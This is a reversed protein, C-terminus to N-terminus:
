LNAPKQLREIKPLGNIEIEIVYSDGDDKVSHVMIGEHHLRMRFMGLTKKYSHENTAEWKMYTRAYSYLLQTRM